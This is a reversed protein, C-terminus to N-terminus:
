GGDDEGTAREGTTGGDLRARQKEMVQLTQEVQSARQAMREIEGEYRRRMELESKM